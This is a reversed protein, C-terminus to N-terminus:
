AAEKARRQWRMMVAHRAAASRQEPTEKATRAAAMKRARAVREEKPSAMRRRRAAISLTNTTKGMAFMRGRMLPYNALAKKHFDRSQM